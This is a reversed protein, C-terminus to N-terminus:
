RWSSGVQLYWITEESGKAVDIGVHMGLERALLYRFGAGRSWIVGEGNADDKLPLAEGAGGFLVLSWRPTFAWRAELEGVWTKEGQYRLAKVGRMDVYPYEYFPADGSLANFDARAGLILKSSLQRYGNLNIRYKAFSDDSGWTPEYWTAQLQAKVGSDPSILNDLGDYLVEVGLGSSRSDFDVDPVGPSPILSSLKFTNQTDLYIQRPGIFLDSDSVRVLLKQEVFLGKIDFELGREGAPGGGGELGYFTLNLDAAGIIGTYRIHDDNWVGFHFAGAITSGNETGAAILGSASPPILRGDDTERGIVKGHFFVAALGGGYGVAPETILIPVPLFGTKQGLWRSTDVYGDDPDIFNDSFWSGQITGTFFLLFLLLLRITQHKPSCISVGQLMLCNNQFLNTNPM